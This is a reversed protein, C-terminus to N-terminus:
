IQSAAVSILHPVLYTDLLASLVLVILCIGCNLFFRTNFPSVTSKVNKSFVLRLFYLSASFASVSLVFYCPITLLTNIGFISLVLLIGKGGLLRVIVSVSFSLFFGRVASLVPICIVGLISFGLFVACLHYKFSDGLASFIDPKASTSNLFFSLYHSVSDNLKAGDSLLGASVTGIIAGCLFLASCILLGLYNTKTDGSDSLSILFSRKNLYIVGYIFIPRTLLYYRKKHLKENISKLINCDCCLILLKM